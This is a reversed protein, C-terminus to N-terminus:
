FGPLWQGRLPYREQLYELEQLRIRERERSHYQVIVEPYHNFVPYQDRTLPSFDALLARPHIAAPTSAMLRYAEQVMTGMDLNNRHHFFYQASLVPASVPLRHRM